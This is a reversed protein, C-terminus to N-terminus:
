NEQWFSDTNDNSIVSAVWASTALACFKFAKRMWIEFEVVYVNGGLQYITHIDYRGRADSNIKENRRISCVVLYDNAFAITSSMTKANIAVPAKAKWETAWSTTLSAICIFIYFNDRGSKTHAIPVVIIVLVRVNIMVVYCMACLCIWVTFKHTCTGLWKNNCFCCYFTCVTSSLVSFLVVVRLFSFFCSVRFKQDWCFGNSPVCLRFSPVYIAYSSPGKVNIFINELTRYSPRLATSSFPQFFIWKWVFECCSIRSAIANLTSTAQVTDSSYCRCLLLHAVHKGRTM